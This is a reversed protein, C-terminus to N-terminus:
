LSTGQEMRLASFCFAKQKPPQPCPFLELSQAPSHTVATHWPVIEEELSTMCWPSLLLTSLSPGADVHTLISSSSSVSIKWSLCLRTLGQFSQHSDSGLVADWAPSDEWGMSSQGRLSQRFVYLLFLSSSSPLSSDLRSWYERRADASNVRREGSKGIGPVM